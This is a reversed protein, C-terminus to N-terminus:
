RIFSKDFDYHIDQFPSLKEETAARGAAAEAAAIQLPGPAGPPPPPEQRLTESVIGESPPPAQALAQEAESPPGPPATYEDSKVTQQKACGLALVFMLALM